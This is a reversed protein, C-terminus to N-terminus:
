PCSLPQLIALGKERIFPTVQMPDNPRHVQPVVYTLPYTFHLPVGIMNGYSNELLRYVISLSPVGFMEAKGYSNPSVCVKWSGQWSPYSWNECCQRIYFRNQVCMTGWMTAVNYCGNSVSTALTLSHRLLQMPIQLGAKTSSFGARRPLCRAHMWLVHTQMCVYM